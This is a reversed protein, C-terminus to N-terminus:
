ATFPEDPVARLLWVAEEEDAAEIGVWGTYRRPSAPLGATRLANEAANMAAEYEVRFASGAPLQLMAMRRRASVNEATVAFQLWAAEEPSSCESGVRPMVM